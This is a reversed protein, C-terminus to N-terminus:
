CGPSLPVPAHADPPFPPRPQGAARCGFRSLLYLTFFHALGLVVLVGGVKEGLLEVAARATNLDGYMRLAMTASGISILCFGVALLRNVSDALESNGHFADILFARGNHQLTRAVWITVGVSLPLYALYCAVIYM